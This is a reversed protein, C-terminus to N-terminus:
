GSTYRTTTEEQFAECSCYSAYRYLRINCSDESYESQQSSHREYFPFLWTDLPSKTSHRYHFPYFIPSLADTYTIILPPKTYERKRLTWVFVLSFAGALAYFSSYIIALMIMEKCKSAVIAGTEPLVKELSMLPGIMDGTLKSPDELIMEVTELSTKSIYYLNYMEPNLIIGIYQCVLHRQSCVIKFLITSALFPSKRHSCGALWINLHPLLCQLYIALHTRYIRLKVIAAPYSSYLQLQRLHIRPYWLLYNDYIASTCSGYEETYWRSLIQRLTPM